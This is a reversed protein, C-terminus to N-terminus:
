VEKQYHLLTKNTEKQLMNAGFKMSIKIGGVSIKNCFVNM